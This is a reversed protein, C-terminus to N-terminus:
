GHSLGAFVGQRSLYTSNGGCPAFAQGTLFVWILFDVFGVTFKYEGKISM